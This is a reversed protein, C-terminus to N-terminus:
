EGKLGEIEYKIYEIAKQLDEVADGKRGARAIYKVANGLNWSLKWDHIVDKPEYKRGDTYHSPHHVPDFKNTDKEATKKMAAEEEKEKKWVEKLVKMTEVSEEGFLNGWEYATTENKMATEKEKERKIAKKITGWVKGDSPDRMWTYNYGGVRCDFMIM